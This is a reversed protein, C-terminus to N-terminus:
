IGRSRHINWWYRCWYYNERENQLTLILREIFVGIPSTPTIEFTLFWDEPALDAPRLSFPKDTPIGEKKYKDYYGAPTYITVDLGKGELGWEKLLEEDKHNPYKMTWYVGMTDLMVISINQRIEKPLDIMGEAIGGMTYSKGSGRKGCIFVVHSRVIDLYIENSLSSTQGMKIYHKGLLVAGEKGYKERDSESRGIIIDFVM